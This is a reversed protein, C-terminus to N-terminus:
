ARFGIKKSEYFWNYNAILFINPSLRQRGAREVQLTPLFGSAARGKSRFRQSSVAPPGGKRGSANPSLCQHGLQENAPQVPAQLLVQCISQPVSYQKNTTIFISRLCIFYPPSGSEAPRRLAARLRGEIVPSPRLPARM